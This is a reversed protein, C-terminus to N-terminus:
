ILNPFSKISGHPLISFWALTPGSLSKSFLQHLYVYSYSVEEYAIYFEWVHDTPDGKGKYKEFKPTEFELPYLAVSISPYM